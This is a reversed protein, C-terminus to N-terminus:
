DECGELDPFLENIKSKMYKELVNAKTRIGDFTNWMKNTIMEKAKKMIGTNWAEEYDKWCAIFDIDVGNISMKIDMDKGLDIDWGKVNPFFNNGERKACKNIAKIIFWSLDDNLDRLTMFDTKVM